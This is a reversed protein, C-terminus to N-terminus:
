SPEASVAEHAMRRLTTLVPEYLLTGVVLKEAAVIPDTEAMVSPVDVAAVIDVAEAYADLIEDTAPMGLEGVTDLAAALVRRHPSDPEINWGHRAILAHVQDLAEPTPEDPGPASLPWQAAGRADHESGAADLAAVVVRVEDLSLGAVETLARVLRLRRLHTDDYRAWTSGETEGPPVLGSRLYYKITATPLGSRSSLEALRM